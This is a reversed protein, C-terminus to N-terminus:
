YEFNNLRKCKSACVHLCLAENPRVCAGVRLLQLGRQLAQAQHDPQLRACVGQGGGRALRVLTHCLGLVAAHLRRESAPACARSAPRSGRLCTGAAVATPGVCLACPRQLPAQGFGLVRPQVSRDRGGVRGRLLQVLSHGLQRCLQACARLGLPYQQLLADLLHTRASHAHTRLTPSAAKGQVRVRVRILQM